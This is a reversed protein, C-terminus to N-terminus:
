DQLAPSANALARLRRQYLCITNSDPLQRSINSLKRDATLIVRDVAEVAM